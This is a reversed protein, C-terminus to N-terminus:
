PKVIVVTVRDLIHLRKNKQWYKRTMLKTWFNTYTKRLLNNSEIQGLQFKWNFSFSSWFIQVSIKKEAFFQLFFKSDSGFIKLTFHWFLNRTAAFCSSRRCTGPRSTWGRCTSGTRCLSTRRRCRCRWSCWPRTGRTKGSSSPSASISTPRRPTTPWTPKPSWPRATPPEPRPEPGTPRFSPDWWRRLSM